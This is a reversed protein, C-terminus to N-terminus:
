SWAQWHRQLEDATGILRIQKRQELLRCYALQGQGVAHAIPQNRYDLDRRDFSKSSLEPRARVLITALCCGIGGRRMEPLTVTGRGRARHDTMHSENRRVVDLPQELDRNWHLANWALDLHADFIPRM